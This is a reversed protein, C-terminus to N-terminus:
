LVVVFWPQVCYLFFGMLWEGGCVLAYVHSFYVCSFVQTGVYMHVFVHACVCLCVSLYPTISFIGLMM